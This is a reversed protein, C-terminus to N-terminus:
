HNEQPSDAGYRFGGGEGWESYILLGQGSTILTLIPSLARSPQAPSTKGNHTQATEKLNYVRLPFIGGRKIEDPKATFKHM